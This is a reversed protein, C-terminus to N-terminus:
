KSKQSPNLETEISGDRNYCMYETKAANVHLGLFAASKELIHLLKKANYSNYSLIALDDAYDADTIKETHFRRSRALELTLGYENCKDVSIRLVYDLCIVFLFPALTGGQLM